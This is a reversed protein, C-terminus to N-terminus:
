KSIWYSLLSCVLGGILFAVISAKTVLRKINSVLMPNGFPDLSNHARLVKWGDDTHKFIVTWHSTYQYSKGQKDTLQNAANGKCIAIDGEFQTTEPNLATTFTGNGVMNERSIGWQKEFDDFSEFSKDTFSVFSFDQHIHARMDAITNNKVATEFVQQILRLSERAEANVDVDNQINTM